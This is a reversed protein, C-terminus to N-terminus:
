WVFRRMFAGMSDEVSKWFKKTAPDTERSQLLCNVETETLDYLSGKANKKSEQWFGKVKDDFNPNVDLTLIDQQLRKLRVQADLFFDYPDVLTSDSLWDGSYFTKFKKMDSSIEKLTSFTKDIGDKALDKISGAM